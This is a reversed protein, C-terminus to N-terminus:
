GRIKTMVENLWICEKDTLSPIDVVVKLVDETQEKIQIESKALIPSPFSNVIIVSKKDPLDWKKTKIGKLNIESTSIELTPKIFENIILLYVAWLSVCISLFCFYTRHINFESFWSLNGMLRSWFKFMVGYLLELIIGVFVTSVWIGEVIRKIGITPRILRIQLSSKEKDYRVHVGHPPAPIDKIFENTIKM